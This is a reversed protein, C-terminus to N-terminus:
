CQFHYYSLLTRCTQMHFNRSNFYYGDCIYNQDHPRLVQSLSPNIFAYQTPSVHVTAQISRRMLPSFVGRSYGDLSVTHGTYEM